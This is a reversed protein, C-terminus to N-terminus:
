KDSKLIERWQRTQQVIADAVDKSPEGGPEASITQLGKQMDPTKLAATVGQYLRAQVDAPTGAPVMLAYWTKFAYDPLHAAKAISPLGPFYASPQPSSVALAKVSHARVPGLVIGSPPMAVELRGGLLDTLMPEDGKYPVHEMKIGASRAFLEMSLHDTSGIGASGFNVEGPHTKAYQILEPVSNVPFASNAILVHPLSAVTTVPVFDKIFDYALTDYIAPAITHATTALFLTYGDPKARAVYAAGLTGGAGARNDVVVTQNLQKGLTSALLRGIMDTSGGPPFPVVLTIPRDGPWGAQAAPGHSLGLCAFLGAALLHPFKM